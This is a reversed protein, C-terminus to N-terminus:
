GLERYDRNWYVLPAADPRPTQSAEVQGLYVTHTGAPHRGVVTCDLWALADALVPAGTHVKEWRGELFRDAKKEFAFRDALAVHERSLISVAFCAKPGELLPTITTERHIAVAVLPPEASVSTFATATLGHREDGRASTVLTVGAAFHRLAERFLHPDVSM